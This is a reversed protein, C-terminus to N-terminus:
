DDEDRNKYEKYEDIFLYVVCAILLLYVAIATWGHVEMPEEKNYHKIGTGTM